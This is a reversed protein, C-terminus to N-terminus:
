HDHGHPGHPHGHEREQKTASRIETVEVDFHLTMGALPHNHDVTVSDKGVAVIWLPFPKGTPGRAMIQMGEELDAGPPFQDRPVEQPEPGSREGYGDAPAVVAHLKDGVVKGALQRELGPVINGAGHLYSLPEGESSDILDGDDDKLSYHISVVMGDGIANTVAREYWAVSTRPRRVGTRGSRAM